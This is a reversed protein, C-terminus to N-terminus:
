KKKGKKVVKRKSKVLVTKITFRGLLKPRFEYVDTESGHEKVADELRDYQAWYEDSVCWVGYFVKTM